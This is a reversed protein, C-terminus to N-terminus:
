AAMKPFQLTHPPRKSMRNVVIKGSHPQELRRDVKKYIRLKVYNSFVDGEGDLYNNIGDGDELARGVPSDATKTVPKLGAETIADDAASSIVSDSALTLRRNLEDTAVDREPTSRNNLTSVTIISTTLLLVAIVAFPIRARSDDALSIDTDHDM